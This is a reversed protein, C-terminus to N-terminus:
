RPKKEPRRLARDISNPHVAIGFRDKVREALDAARLSPDADRERRIFEVVDSTFKHAGRPGPKQPMLGALGSQEFNLRTQYFTLRSFGFSSAAQNVPRKEVEALRLMEYKVQVLDHPDFFEGNQFLEESVREPHLNLTGQRRLRALKDANVKKQM